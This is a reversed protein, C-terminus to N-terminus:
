SVIHKIRKRHLKAAAVIKQKKKIIEKSIQKGKKRQNKRKVKRRSEDYGSNFNFVATYFLVM